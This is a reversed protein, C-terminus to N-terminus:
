KGAQQRLRKLEEEMVAARDELDLIQRMQEEIVEDKEQILDALQKLLEEPTQM